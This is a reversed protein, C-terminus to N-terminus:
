TDGIATAASQPRHPAQGHRIGFVETSDERHDPRERSSASVTLTGILHTALEAAQTRIEPIATTEYRRGRLTPGLTFIQKSPRGSADIVGGRTDADLGLRFPDPRALGTAFLSRYFADQTIDPSAGTGNVLWGADLETPNEGAIRASIGDPHPTASALHGRIVRLRGGARLASVRRATAPPIRHRHIEWYRVLHSLFRRQDDLDLGAWLRPIHPRLADVIGQWEGGNERIPTRIAHLLEHLTTEGAPLDIPTPTAPPDEHPHPLLGHRSVAYVVSDPHADTVSIALDIMTLGTGVVLVPTGDSVAALVHPRWPDPICRRGSVQRDWPAATTWGTALVVADADLRGGAALHVRLRHGPGPRTLAAAAATLHSVHAIARVQRETDALLDSLYRGYLGRPLYDAAAVRLDQAHCWRLLHGSDDALASM